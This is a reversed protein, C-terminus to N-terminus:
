ENRLEPLYYVSTGIESIFKLKLLGNTSLEGTAEILDDKNANLIEKVQASNFSLSDSHIAEFEAPSTFEIKNSHSTPEGLIFKVQKHGEDDVSTALRFTDRTNSGLAGKAKSFRMILESDINFTVEYGPESIEPTTQIIFPDALSYQLSFNSDEILLKTPVKYQKEIGILIDIDLISLMKLLTSTNFIGITGDELDVDCSISGVLDQNPSVFAINMKKNSINWRVSEVTGNLYYKEINAVLDLKQIM